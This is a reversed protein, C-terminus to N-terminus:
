QLAHELPHTRRVVAVGGDETLQECPEVLLQRVAENKRWQLVGKADAHLQQTALGAQHHLQQEEASVVALDV